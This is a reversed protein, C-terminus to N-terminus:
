SYKMGMWFFYTVLRLGWFYFFLCEEQPPTLSLGRPIDAVIQGVTGDGFLLHHDTHLLPYFSQCPFGFYESFVQGLAVKDVVFLVVRGSGPEFGPRWPPFVLFILVHKWFSPVPDCWNWFISEDEVMRWRLYVMISSVVVPLLPLWPFWLQGM